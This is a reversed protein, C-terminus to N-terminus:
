PGPLSILVRGTLKGREGSPRVASVIIGTVPGKPPRGYAALFDDKLTRAAKVTKGKEDEGALIFVTEEDTTRYMSGVPIRNGYAYVLRIGVLPFGHWFKRPYDLVRERWSLDQSDKGFVVTVSVPFRTEFEKYDESSRNAADASFEFSLAAGAATDWNGKKEWAVGSGPPLVFEGSLRNGEIEVKREPRSSWRGHTSEKWGAASLVVSPDAGIAATVVLISMAFSIALAALPSRRLLEKDTKM